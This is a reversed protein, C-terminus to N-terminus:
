ESYRTLAHVLPLFSQAFWALLHKFLHADVRMVHQRINSPVWTILRVRLASHKARHHEIRSAPRTETKRKDHARTSCWGLRASGLCGSEGLSRM